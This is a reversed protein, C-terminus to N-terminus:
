SVKRLEVIQSKIWSIEPGFVTHAGGPYIQKTVKANMHELLKASQEVHELPIHGDSEACGLLIPTKKLNVAIRTTNLPGILAGSLGAVFGLQTPNRYAFELSLCAGQSFGILAIRENPIGANLGEMQLINILSLASSLSPENQELPVLFRQPYWSSHTANPAICAFDEANITEALGAIDEACSGRGHIFILLGRAKNLSTGFRLAQTPAHIHM